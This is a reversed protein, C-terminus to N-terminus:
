YKYFALSIISYFYNNIFQRVTEPELEAEDYPPTALWYEPSLIPPTLM